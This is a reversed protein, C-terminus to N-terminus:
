FIFKLALQIVRYDGAGIGNNGSIDSTIQGFNPATLTNVPTSPNLHNPLNFAEGRLQISRGEGWVPFNRSVALNFQFVGPGKMNNYGLNGYAPPLPAGPTGPIYAFASKNIWGNVSQNSPYPNASV